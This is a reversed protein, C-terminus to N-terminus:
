ERHRLRNSYIRQEVAFVLNGYFDWRYYKPDDDDGFNREWQRMIGHGGSISHHAINYVVNHRVTVYRGEYVNVGKQRFDHIVNDEVVVHQGDINVGKRCGNINKEWDPGVWWSTALIQWHDNVDTEGDMEFGRITVGQSGRPTYFGNNVFTFPAREGPLRTIVIHNDLDGQAVITTPMDEPSNESIHHRGGRVYITDGPQAQQAAHAVSAWPSVSTGDNLNDNGGEPWVYIGAPNAQREVVLLDLTWTRPEIDKNWLSIHIPLQHNGAQHRDPQWTVVGTRKNIHVGAEIHPPIYYVLKGEESSRAQVTMTFAAGSDATWQQAATVVQIVHNIIPYSPPKIGGFRPDDSIMRQFILAEEQPGDAVGDDLGQVRVVQPINWTSSDFQM